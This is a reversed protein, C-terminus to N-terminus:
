VEHRRVVFLQVGLKLIERLSVLRQDLDHAPQCRMRGHEGDGQAVRLRHRRCVEVGSHGSDSFDAACYAGLRRRVLQPVRSGQTGEELYIAATVTAVNATTAQDNM